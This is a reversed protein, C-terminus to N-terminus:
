HSGRSWAGGRVDEGAPSRLAFRSNPCMLAFGGKVDGTLPRGYWEGSPMAAAYEYLVDPYGGQKEM